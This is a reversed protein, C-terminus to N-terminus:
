WYPNGVAAIGWQQQHQQHEMYESDYPYAYGQYIPYPNPQPLTAPHQQRVRRTGVNTSHRKRHDQQQQQEKVQPTSNEESEQEDVAQQKQEDQKDTGKMRHRGEFGGKVVLGVKAEQRCGHVGLGGVTRVVIVIFPV